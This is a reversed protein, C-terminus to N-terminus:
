KVLLMKKEKVFNDKNDISNVELRYIYMGSALASANWKVSHNGSNQVKNVLVDVKQGLINYVTLKVQCESRLAYSITTSPNFPNPYNNYLRYDLDNETEEVGTTGCMVPSYTQTLFRSSKLVENDVAKGVSQIYYYKMINKAATTDTFERVDKGVKAILDYKTGWIRAAYGKEEKMISRYIEFGELNNEDTVVWKLSIKGGAMENVSFEKPPLPAKPLNWGNEYNAKAKAFTAILSDKGSLAWRNKEEVSIEGKKFKNGIEIAKDRSLGGAGEVLIITISKGFPIDYPGYGNAMSAGQNGEVGHTPDATSTSYNKSPEIYEAHSKDGEIMKNYRMEASNDNLGGYNYRSDRGIYSATTPQTIDDTQDSASKDAHLTLIGAFQAAGLRGVTDSHAILAGWGGDTHIIPAGINNYDSFQSYYGHWALQFRMKDPNDAEAEEGEGRNDIMTNVGWGVSNGILNRIEKCIAINNQYYFVVGILAKGSREIEDDADTNGTNTYTYKTVIYNDDGENVFQFIEREMTLGISTNVKNYILRDCFLSPDVSDVEAIETIDIEGNVKVISNPYRSIVKFDIPFVGGMCQNKPGVGIVRYPITTGYANQFDKCGIWLGRGVQMDQNAYEGPWRMGYQQEPVFAEEMECGLSSYWNQYSGVNLWVNKGSQAFLSTSLILVLLIINRQM